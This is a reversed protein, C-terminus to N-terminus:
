KAAVQAAQAPIIPAKQRSQTMRHDLRSYIAGIERVRQNPIANKERHGEASGFNTQNQIAGSDAFDVNRVQDTSQVFQARLGARNLYRDCSM